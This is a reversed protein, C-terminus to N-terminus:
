GGGGCAAVLATVALICLTIGNARRHGAYSRTLRTAGTKAALTRLIDAVSVGGSRHIRVLISMCCRRGFTQTHVKHPVALPARYTSSACSTVRPQFTTRLTRCDPCLWSTGASLDRTNTCQGARAIRPM